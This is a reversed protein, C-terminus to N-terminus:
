GGWLWNRCPETPIAVSQWNTTTTSIASNLITFSTGATVQDLQDSSLKVPKALTASNMVGIAIASLLLTKM